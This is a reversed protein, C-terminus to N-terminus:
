RRGGSRLWALLQEGSLGHTRALERGDKDYLVLTPIARVGYQRALAQNPSDGSTLDVLISTHRSEMYDRVDPRSLTRSEFDRCDPCWDATFLVLAPKGSSRSHRVSENWSQSWTAEEALSLTPGPRHAFWGIMVAAVIVAVLFKASRDM